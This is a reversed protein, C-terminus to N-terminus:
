EGPLPYAKRLMRQSNKLGFDGHYFGLTTFAIAADAMHAMAHRLNAIRKGPKTKTLM